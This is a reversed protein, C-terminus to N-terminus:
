CNCKQLTDMEMAKIKNLQGANGISAIGTVFEVIKSTSLVLDSSTPLGKSSSHSTASEVTGEQQYLSPLFSMGCFPQSICLLPVDLFSMIGDASSKCEPSYLQSVESSVIWKVTSALPSKNKCNFQKVKPDLELAKQLSSIVLM